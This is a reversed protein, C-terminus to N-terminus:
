SRGGQTQWPQHSWAAAEYVALVLACTPMARVVTSAIQMEAREPVFAVGRRRALDGLSTTIQAALDAVVAARSQDTRQLAHEVFVGRGDDWQWWGIGAALVMGEEASRSEAKVVYLRHGFAQRPTEYRDGRTVRSGPPIVSSLPILNFDHVGCAWLAADFASLLTQGEGIGGAVAIDFRAPIPTGRPRTAISDQPAHAIM